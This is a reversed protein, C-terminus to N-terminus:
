VRGAGDAEDFNRALLDGVERVAREADAGRISFQLQGGRAVRLTMLRVISKADVWEGEDGSRVRISATFQKALRSLLIAPRAHLGAAAAIVV